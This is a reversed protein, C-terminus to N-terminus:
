YSRIKYKKTSSTTNSFNYSTLNYSTLLQSTLSTQPNELFFSISKKSEMTWKSGQENGCIIAQLEDTTLVTLREIPFVEDFGQKFAQMQLSFSDQLYVKMLLNFYQQLNDITVNIKDGNEVLKWDQYGPVTFDLELQEITANNLLLQQNYTQIRQQETLNPQSDIQHKRNLLHMFKELQISLSNDIEKLDSFSLKKGIMLKLFAKSFPLDLIRGDLIAKGVFEGVFKFWNIKKEDSENLNESGFFTEDM